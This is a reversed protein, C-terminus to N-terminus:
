LIKEEPELFLQHKDKDAFTKLKTEISPCYRPGVSQITGDFM